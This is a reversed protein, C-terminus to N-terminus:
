QKGRGTSYHKAQKIDRQLLFLQVCMRHWRHRPCIDARWQIAGLKGANPSVM